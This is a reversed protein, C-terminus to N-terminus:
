SRSGRRAAVTPALEEEELDALLEAVQPPLDEAAAGEALVPFGRAADGVLRFRAGAPLAALAARFARFSRALKRPDAAYEANFVQVRTTGAASCARSTCRRDLM